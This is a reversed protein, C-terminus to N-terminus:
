ETSWALSTSPFLNRRIRYALGNRWRWIGPVWSIKRCPIWPALRLPFASPTISALLPCRLPNLFQVVFEAIIPWDPHRTLVEQVIASSHLLKYDWSWSKRRIKVLISRVRRKSELQDTVDAQTLSGTSHPLSYLLFRKWILRGCFDLTTM